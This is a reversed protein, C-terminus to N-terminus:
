RIRRRRGPFSLAGSASHAGPLIELKCRPKRRLPLPRYSHIMGSMCMMSKHFCLLLDAAAALETLTHCTMADGFDNATGVLTM